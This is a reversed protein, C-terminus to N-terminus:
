DRLVISRRPVLITPAVQAELQANRIAPALTGAIFSLVGIIEGPTIDGPLNITGAREREFRMTAHHRPESTTEVAAVARAVPDAPGPRGEGVPIPNPPKRGLTM